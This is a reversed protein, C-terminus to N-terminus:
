AAKKEDTQESTEAAKEAAKRAKEAAKEEKETSNAARELAADVCNTFDLQEFAATAYVTLARAVEENDFPLGREIVLQYVPMSKTLKVVDRLRQGYQAVELVSEPIIVGNKDTIAVVTCSLAKNVTNYVKKKSEKAADTSNKKLEEVKASLVAKMLSKIVAVKDTNRVKAIINYLTGNSNLVVISRPMLASESMVVNNVIEFKSSIFNQM